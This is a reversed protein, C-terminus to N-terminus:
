PTDSTYQMPAEQLNVQYVSLIYAKLMQWGFSVEDLGVSELSSYNGDRQGVPLSTM